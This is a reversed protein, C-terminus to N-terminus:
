DQATLDDAQTIGLKDKYAQMMNEMEKIQSQLRTNEAQLMQITMQQQQIMNQQPDQMMQGMMQGMMPMNMMGADGGGQAQQVPIQQAPAQQAPAQAQSSMQRAQRSQEARVKEIMDNHYNRSPSYWNNKDSRFQRFAKEYAKTGIGSGANGSRLFMEETPPRYDTEATREKAPLDGNITLGETLFQEMMEDYLKRDEDSLTGRTEDDEQRYHFRSKQAPAPATTAPASAFAAAPAPPAGGQAQAQSSMQRVQRSQEARVKEVMDNHAERTPNYWNNKDNRFQRFAKKYAKPGARFDTAAFDGSNRFMEETPPRYGNKATRAEAPLPNTITLGGTLFQEMMEDYLKRDEDSLTGRTEDDEQRYLYRFQQAPARATSAPASADTPAPASADTSAPASADTPAPASADTPAPASASADAPAPPMFVPPKEKEEEQKHAAQIPGTTGAVTVPSLAATPMRVQEGAAAMAGEAEARAELAPDNLFGSGTVEGRAQSVLHSVEHGLLAQGRYGTFDILGPAFAIEAGRSMADAGADAVARSEYLRLNSLDAGFANEMKARIAGPLDVSRGRQEPTPDAAGSALAAMSPGYSSEEEAAKQEPKEEQKRSTYEHDM